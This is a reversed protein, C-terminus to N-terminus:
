RLVANHNAIGAAKLARLADQRGRRGVAPDIAYPIARYPAAYHEGFGHEAIGAMVLALYWVYPKLNADLVRAIYTCARIAKGTRLCEVM